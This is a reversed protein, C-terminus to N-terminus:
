FSFCAIFFIRYIIFVCELFDRNKRGGRPRIFLQWPCSAETRFMELGCASGGADAAGGPESGKGGPLAGHYLM